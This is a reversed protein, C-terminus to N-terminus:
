QFELCNELLFQLQVQSNRWAGLTMMQCPGSMMPIVPSYGVTVSTSNSSWRGLQHGEQKQARRQSKTGTQAEGKSVTGELM